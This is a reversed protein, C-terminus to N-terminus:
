FLDLAICHEFAYYKSYNDLYHFVNKKFNDLNLAKIKEPIKNFIKKFLGFICKKM